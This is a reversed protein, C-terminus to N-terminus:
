FKYTVILMGNTGNAYFKKPSKQFKYARMDEDNVNKRDKRNQEMGGTVIKTNNLINTLMLNISLSGRKLYISRGISADLMFGGDGKAQDYRNYSDNGLDDRLLNESAYRTVPTYYLYIRDYYNGILDIFWGGSHYNLDLSAASLPTCGEHMGRSLVVDNYSKGDQSKVYAVDADNIYKAETLAGLAKINFTSSVKFNLGLELGYYVKKIGNISVYSFSNQSDDYYMSYEAVHGLRSYYANLNAHVWSTELQLGLESSFVDENRLDRVFDNNMQPAAFASRAVPAKKEYGIGGMLTVGKGMNLMAGFKGGGDLFSATKSKGLSNNLALGNRMMGERQLTEGGIRGSLFYHLPGFNEAYTAWLNMRNVFINYDYAFRDGVKIEKNPHDADYMAQMDSSLYTGVVYTNVNHFTSAGLLDEMTQYHMGKNTSLNFGANLKQTKSLQKNLSSALSITLQDDHYAQLYYMADGGQASVAKNSFYLQDWNIQRNAKSASLYDYSAQWAELGSATRNDTDTPDWVNYNYSPMLSYYDPTPNTSNNYNLRSSSYMAYKGFLTTTLKASHDINWDWTLLASPAWDHIIRSNRKKGNQYGWNPNYFRDNALWYMEDTSAAQAGRETPNGWTVLSLSHQPNFMKEVGLYYSLANYFTGEVYGEGAYRYTLGMSWAWGKANYGSSYNYMGRFIYNRNAGAVSLRHGAPMASPRFNYNNSGGLSTMAFINDEFPLSAEVGRTQNNLGGVLSYRFEGREADNAPNGNIYIDNYKSNYARFKFRAPSWKYGVESAYANSNMGLVTVEQSVNDDEGLQSETFTFASEDVTADQGQKTDVQATVTATCCLAFLALKLKKRM